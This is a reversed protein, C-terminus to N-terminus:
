QNGVVQPEKRGDPPHELQLSTNLIVRTPMFKDVLREGRDAIIFLFCEIEQGLRSARFCGDDEPPWEGQCDGISSYALSFFAITFNLSKIPPLGVRVSLNRSTAGCVTSAVVQCSLSISVFRRTSTSRLSAIELSEVPCYDTNVPLLAHGVRMAREDETVSDAAGHTSELEPFHNTFDYM